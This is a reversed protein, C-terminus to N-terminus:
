EARWTAISAAVAAHFAVDGPEVPAPLRAQCLATPSTAARAAAAAALVPWRGAAEDRATFAHSLDL